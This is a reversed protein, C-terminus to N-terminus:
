GRARPGAVVIVPVRMEDATLGTHIGHYPRKHHHYEDGRMFIMMKATSGGIAIYDGLHKRYEPHRDFNGFVGQDILTQTQFLTYDGAYKQFAAQFADDMGPKIKFCAGRPDLSVPHELCAQLAADDGLYTFESVDIQGHDATVVFLTDPHKTVLRKFKRDIAKLLRRSPRATTGFSHMITDLDPYYSYIFKRDPQACLQHLQRFMQGLSRFEIENPAHVKSAIKKPMCVYVNRDTKQYDWIKRYPLKHHAFNPDPTLERTYYNRNRFLEIVEGDFDVSWAFWGHETPTLASILSTTAAATTSPFVSTVEDIQHTRLFSKAPLNKELIKSGMGDIVLYVVNKYGAKLTKALKPLTVHDTNQGLFEALTAAVNVVSHNFDPFMFEKTNM